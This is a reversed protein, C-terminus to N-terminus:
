RREDLGACTARLEAEDEAPMEWTGIRVPSRSFSETGFRSEGCYDPDCLSCSSPAGRECRCTVQADLCKGLDVELAYDADDADPCKCEQTKANESRLGCPDESAYDEVAFSPPMEVGCCNAHDYNRGGHVFRYRYYHSPLHSYVETAGCTHAIEHLHLGAM